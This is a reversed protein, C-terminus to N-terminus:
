DEVYSPRRLLETSLSQLRTLRFGPSPHEPDYFIYDGRRGVGPIDFPLHIVEAM